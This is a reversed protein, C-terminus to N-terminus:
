QRSPRPHSFGLPRYALRIGKKTRRHGLQFGEDEGVDAARHTELVLHGASADRLAILRENLRNQGGMPLPNLDPEGLEAAADDRRGPVAMEQHEVVGHLRRLPGDRHLLAVAVVGDGGRAALVDFHPHAHVDAHRLDVRAVRIIEDAFRDVVRGPQVVVGGAPLDQNTAAHHRNEIVDAELAHPQVHVAPSVEFADSVDLDVLQEVVIV